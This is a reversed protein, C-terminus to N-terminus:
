PIKTKSLRQPNRSVHKQSAPRRVINVKPRKRLLIKRKLHPVRRIKMNPDITAAQFGSNLLTKRRRNRQKALYSKPMTKTYVYHTLKKVSEPADPMKPIMDPLKVSLISDLSNIFKKFNGIKKRKRRKPTKRVVLGPKQDGAKTKV